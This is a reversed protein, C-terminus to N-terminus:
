HVVVDSGAFRQARWRSRVRALLVRRDPDAHDQYDTSVSGPQVHVVHVPGADKLPAATALKQHIKAALEAVRYASANSAAVAVTVEFGVLAHDEDGSSHRQVDEVSFGSVRAVETLDPLEPDGFALLPVGAGNALTTLLELVLGHDIAAM